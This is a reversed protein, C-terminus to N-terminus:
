TPWSEKELDESLLWSQMIITQAEESNVRQNKPGAEAWRLIMVICLLVGRATSVEGGVGCPWWTGQNRLEYPTRQGGDGNESRHVGEEQGLRLGLGEGLVWSPGPIERCRGQRGANKERM